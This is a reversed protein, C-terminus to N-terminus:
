TQINFSYIFTFYLRHRRRTVVNGQVAGEREPLDDLATFDSAAVM